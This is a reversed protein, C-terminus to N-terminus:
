WRRLIRGNRTKKEEREKLEMQRMIIRSSSSSKKGRKSERVMRLMTKKWREAERV